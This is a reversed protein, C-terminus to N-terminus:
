GGPVVIFATWVLKHAVICSFIPHLALKKAMRENACSISCTNGPGGLAVM